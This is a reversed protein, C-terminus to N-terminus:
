DACCLDQENTNQRHRLWLLGDAAEMEMLCKRLDEMHFSLYSVREQSSCLAKSALHADYQAAMLQM